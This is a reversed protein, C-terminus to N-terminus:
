LCQFMIHSHVKTLYVWEFSNYAEAGRESKSESNVENINLVAGRAMMSVKKIAGSKSSAAAGTNLHALL